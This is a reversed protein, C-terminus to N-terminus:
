FVLVEVVYYFGGVGESLFGFVVEVFGELAEEVEVGFADGSAVAGEGFCL